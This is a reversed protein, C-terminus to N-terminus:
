GDVADVDVVDDTYCAGEGKEEEGHCEDKMM